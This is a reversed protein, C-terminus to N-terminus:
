IKKSFDKYYTPCFCFLLVHFFLPFEPKLLKRSREFITKSSVM